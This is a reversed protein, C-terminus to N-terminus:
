RARVMRLYECIPVPSISQWLSQALEDFRLVRAVPVDHRTKFKFEAPTGEWDLCYGLHETNALALLTDDPREVSDRVAALDLDSLIYRVVNTLDQFATSPFRAAPTDLHILTQKVSLYIRTWASRRVRGGSIKSTSESPM